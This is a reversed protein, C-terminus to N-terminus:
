ERVTVLLPGEVELPPVTVSTSGTWTLRTEALDSSRRAPFSPVQLTPGSARLSVCVKVITTCMLGAAVRGIALVAVTAAELGASSALAVMEEVIAGVVERRTHSGATQVVAGTVAVDPVSMM